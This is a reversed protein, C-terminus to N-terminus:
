DKLHIRSIYFLECKNMASYDSELCINNSSYSTLIVNQYHSLLDNPPPSHRGDATTQGLSGWHFLTLICDIIQMSFCRGITMSLQNEVCILLNIDM